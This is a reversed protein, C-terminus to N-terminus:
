EDLQDLREAGILEVLLVVGHIPSEEVPKAAGEDLDEILILAQHQLDFLRAEDEVADSDVGVVIARLREREDEILIAHALDREDLPDLLLLDLTEERDEMLRAVGALVRVIEQSQQPARLQLAEGEVVDVGEGLRDIQGLRAGAGIRSLEE